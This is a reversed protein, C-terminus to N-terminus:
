ADVFTIAFRAPLLLRYGLRSERSVAMIGFAILFVVELLKVLRM